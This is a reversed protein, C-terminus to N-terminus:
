VVLFRVSTDLQVSLHQDAKRSDFSGVRMLGLTAEVPRHDGFKKVLGPFFNEMTTTDLKIPVSAPLM